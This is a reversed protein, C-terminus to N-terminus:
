TTSQISDSWLPIYIMATSPSVSIDTLNFGVMISHLNVIIENFKIDGNPNFGVMISHLNAHSLSPMSVLIRNFGVM